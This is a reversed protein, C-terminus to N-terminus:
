ERPRIAVVLCAWGSTSGENVWKRGTKRQRRINNELWRGASIPGRTTASDRQGAAGEAKRYAPQNLHQVEHM